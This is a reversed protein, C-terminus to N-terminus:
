GVHKLTVRFNSDDAGAYDTCRPGRYEERMAKRNDDVIRAIVNFHNHFVINALGRWRQLRQVKRGLVQGPLEMELGVKIARHRTDIDNLFVTGFTHLELLIQPGADLRMDRRM